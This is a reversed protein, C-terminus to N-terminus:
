LMPGIKTTILYINSLLCLPYGSKLYIPDIIFYFPQTHFDHEVSSPITGPKYICLSQGNKNQIATSKIITVTTHEHRVPM